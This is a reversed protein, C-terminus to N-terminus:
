DWRRLPTNWPPQITFLEPAQQENDVPRTFHFSQWLLVLGDSASDTGWTISPQLGPEKQRPPKIEALLIGEKQLREKEAKIRAQAARKAAKEARLDPMHVFQKWGKIEDREGSELYQGVVRCVTNASRNETRVKPALSAMLTKSPITARHTAVLAHDTM